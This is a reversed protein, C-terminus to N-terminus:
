KSSLVEECIAEFTTAFERLRSSLLEQAGLFLRLEEDESFHNSAAILLMSLTRPDDPSFYQGRLPAQERHVPIDSLIIKKGMAKSEEVSTSWGEFLSPNLVAVSHLMLSVVDEYPVIGLPIFRDELGYEQIKDKLSRFYGENRYDDTKGTSVILPCKGSQKLLNLADIIISHNKHMWFQNPVHFWPDSLSYKEVIDKKIPLSNVNPCLSSVFRLVHTPKTTGPYRKYYDSRADESSLLVATCREVINDFQRDRGQYEKESFFNPYYLHQFDPIWGLSPFTACRWNTGFHFVLDIQYKKLLQGLLLDQKPLVKGLIKHAFWAVSRRDLLPTRVIEALGKFDSVDSKLGTFIVPLIKKEDQSKLAFFLNKFYNVGGLWSVQGLVFGVRTVQM